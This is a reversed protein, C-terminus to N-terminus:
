ILAYHDAPYKDMAWKVFECLAKGDVMNVEGPSGVANAPIPSKNAEVLFRYTDAWEPDTLPVRRVALRDLQAIIRVDASSGVRAMEQYDAFVSDELNNDGNMWVMVTWKANAAFAASATLCVVLMAMLTRRM